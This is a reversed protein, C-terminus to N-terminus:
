GSMAFQAPVFASSVGFDAFRVFQKTDKLVSFLSMAEFTLTFDEPLIVSTAGLFHWRASTMGKWCFPGM